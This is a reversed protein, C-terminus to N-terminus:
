RRLGAQLDEEMRSASAMGMVRLGLGTHLRKLLEKNESRLDISPKWNSDGCHKVIVISSDKGLNFVWRM